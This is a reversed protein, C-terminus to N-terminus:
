ANLSARRRVRSGGSVWTRRTCESLAGPSVEPRGRSGCGTTRRTSRSGRLGEARPVRRERVPVPRQLERRARRDRDPRPANNGRPSRELGRVRQERHPGPRRSETGGEVESGLFTKPLTWGSPAGSDVHALIKKGDLTLEIRPLPGEADYSLVDKGDKEIAGKAVVIEKAAYDLTFLNEAFLPLGLVGKLDLGPDFRKRDMAIAAIGKFAIGGVEISDVAVEHAVIRKAASPDGVEQEAGLELGLSGVFAEDLVTGAAGTDFLFKFPGKGNVKAEVVPVTRSAALEFPIRAGSAPLVTERPKDSQPLLLLAPLLSIM